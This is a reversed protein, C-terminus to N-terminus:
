ADSVLVYTDEFVCEDKKHYNIFLPSTYGREVKLGNTTEFYTDSTQSKSITVIGNKGVRNYVNAITTGLAPDNNTSIIAVDRLTRGSVKRSHKKLSKVVKNTETVLDRLVQTKNVGDVINEFGAKVIAETLVIATTTGDGAQSATRDAAEKMM